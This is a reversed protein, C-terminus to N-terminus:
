SGGYQCVRRWAERVLILGFIILYALCAYGTIGVKEFFQDWYKKRENEVQNRDLDPVQDRPLNSLDM